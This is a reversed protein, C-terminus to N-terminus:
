GLSKVRTIQPPATRTKSDQVLHAPSDMDKMRRQLWECASTYRDLDFANPLASRGTQGQSGLISSLVAEPVLKGVPELM